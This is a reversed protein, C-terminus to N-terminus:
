DLACAKRVCGLRAMALTPHTVSSSCSTGAPKRKAETDLILELHRRLEPIKQEIADWVIEYDIGMYDHM